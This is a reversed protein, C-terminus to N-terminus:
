DQWWPPKTESWIEGGIATMGPYVLLPAYVSATEVTTGSPVFVCTLHNVPDQIGKVNIEVFQAPVAQRPLVSISIDSGVWEHKAAVTRILNVLVQAVGLVCSRHRKRYRRILDVAEDTAARTPVKGIASIRFDHPDALPTTRTIDFGARPRWIGYGNGLANSVMIGVPQLDGPSSRASGFGVAVFAHGSEQIPLKLAAVASRSNEALVRFYDSPSVNFLTEAVWQETKVGGLRALGTYGMLFRGCLVIAKNETDERNPPTGKKLWTIRRDSALIAYEKSICSMVLTM